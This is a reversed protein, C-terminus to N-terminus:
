DLLIEKNFYSIYRYIVQYTGCIKNSTRLFFFFFNKTHGARSFFLSILLYSFSREQNLIFYLEM